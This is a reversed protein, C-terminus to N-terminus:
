SKKPELLRWHDGCGTRVAAYALIGGDKKRRRISRLIQELTGSSTERGEQQLCKCLRIADRSVIVDANQMMQEVPAGAGKAYYREIERTKKRFEEGTM